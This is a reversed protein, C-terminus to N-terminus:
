VKYLYVHDSSLAERSLFFPEYHVIKLTHRHMFIWEPLVYVGPVIKKLVLLYQCLDHFLLYFNDLSLPGM